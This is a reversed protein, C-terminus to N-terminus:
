IEAFVFKIIIILISNFPFGNVPINSNGLAWRLYRQEWKYSRRANDRVSNENPNNRLYLLGVMGFWVYNFFERKANMM